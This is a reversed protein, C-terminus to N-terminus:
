KKCVELFYGGDEDEELSILHTDKFKEAEQAIYKRAAELVEENIEKTLEREEDSPTWNIDKAWSYKEGSKYVAMSGNLFPYIVYKGEWEKSKRKFCENKIDKLKSSIKYEFEQEDFDKFM